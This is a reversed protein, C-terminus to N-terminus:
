RAHRHADWASWAWVLALAAGGLSLTSSAAPWAQSWAEALAMPDAEALPGSLQRLLLRAAHAALAATGLVTGALTLLGKLWQRNALQGLGPCVLASLLLARHSRRPPPRLRDLAFACTRRAEAPDAAPEALLLRAGRGEAPWDAPRAVVHVHLHPLEEAFVASYVKPAGTAARLAAAAEALLPGLAAQEASDLQDLQEVHRLPAVVLWGPVAGTGLRAHVALLGRRVVDAGTALHRCEPCASPQAM